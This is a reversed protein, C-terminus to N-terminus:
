EATMEEDGFDLDGVFEDTLGASVPAVLLLELTRLEVRLAAVMSELASIRGDVEERRTVPCWRGPSVRLSGM